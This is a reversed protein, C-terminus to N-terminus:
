NFDLLLPLHDSINLDPVLFDNVIINKDTFIYDAYRLEKPYLSSRTSEIGYEKILDVYESGLMQISKTDPLMNFDGCIIKKGDVKNALELIKKSQEIKAETDTKISGQWLGHVNVIVYGEVKIALAVGATFRGSYDNWKQELDYLQIGEILEQRLSNRVFCAIGFKSSLDVSTEGYYNKEGYEFFYGTYDSLIKSVDEFGSKVEDRGTKGVGGKLIEQLCFIDVTESQQQIYKLLVEEVRCGWTNLSILKM